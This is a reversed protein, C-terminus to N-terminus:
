DFIYHFYFMKPIIGMNNQVNDVLQHVNSKYTELTPQVGM